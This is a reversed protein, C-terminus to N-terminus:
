NCRSGAVQVLRAKCFPLWPGPEICIYTDQQVNFNTKPGGMSGSAVPLNPPHPDVRRSMGTRDRGRMSADLWVVM